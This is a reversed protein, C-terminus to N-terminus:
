KMQNNDDKEGKKPLQRNKMSETNSRSVRERKAQAEVLKISLKDQKMKGSKNTYVYWIYLYIYKKKIHRRLGNNGKIKNKAASQM